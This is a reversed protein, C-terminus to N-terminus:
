VRAKARVNVIKTPSDGVQLLPPFFFAHMAGTGESSLMDKSNSNQETKMRSLHELMSQNRFAAVGALVQGFFLTQLIV